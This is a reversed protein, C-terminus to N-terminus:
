AKPVDQENQPAATQVPQVNQVPQVPVVQVPQQVQTYQVPQGQQPQVPQQYVVKQVKPQKPVGMHKDVFDSIFPIQFGKQNLAMIGLIVLLVIEILNVANNVIGDIHLPFSLHFGKFVNTIVNNIFSFLYGVCSVAANVLNLFLVIVLAQTASKKLWMNSETVLVFGAAVVLAIPSILGIFYLLAATLGVSIGLKTKEM